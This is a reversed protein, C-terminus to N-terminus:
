VANKVIKVCIAVSLVLGLSGWLPSSIVFQLLLFYINLGQSLLFFVMVILCAQWGWKQAELSLHPPGNEPLTSLDYGAFYGRQAWYIFFLAAVALGLYVERAGPQALFAMLGFLGALNRVCARILWGVALGIQLHIPLQARSRLFLILAELSFLVVFFGLLYKMYEFQLYKPLFYWKFVYSGCCCCVMRDLYVYAQVFFNSFILLFIGCNFLGLGLLYYSLNDIKLLSPRGKNM